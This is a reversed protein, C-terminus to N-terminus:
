CSGLTDGSVTWGAGTPTETILYIRADSAQTFLTGGSLSGDFIRGGQGTMSTNLPGLNAKTYNAWGVITETYNQCSMGSSGFIGTLNVGQPRLQWTGLNQNFSTASQFMESMITVESVDWSSINQNFSTAAGFMGSNLGGMSTVNSTNWGTIDQNFSNANRFMGSMNTVKSVDWKDLPQNFARAQAFM